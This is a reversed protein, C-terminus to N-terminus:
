PPMLSRQAENELQVARDFHALGLENLVRKFKRAVAPQLAALRAAVQASAADLDDAAVVKWVLGWACAQEASFEEGLLM